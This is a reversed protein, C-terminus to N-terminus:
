SRRWWGTCGGCPHEGHRGCRSPRAWPSGRPGRSASMPACWECGGSAARRWSPWASCTFIFLSLLCGLVFLCRVPGLSFFSSGFVLWLSCVPCKCKGQVLFFFFLRFLFLLNQEFTNLTVVSIWRLNARKNHAKNKRKKRKRKKQKKQNPKKKTKKPWSTKTWRQSCMLPKKKAKPPENWKQKKRRFKKTNKWQVIWQGVLSWRCVLEGVVLSWECAASDEGGLRRSVSTAVTSDGGDVQQAGAKDHQWGRWEEVLM